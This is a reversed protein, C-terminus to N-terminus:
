QCKLICKLEPLVMNLEPLSAVCFMKQYLNHSAHGHTYYHIQTQVPTSLQLSINKERKKQLLQLAKYHHQSVCM